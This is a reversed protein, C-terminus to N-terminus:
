AGPTMSAPNLITIWCPMSADEPRHGRRSSAVRYTGDVPYAAGSLSEVQFLSGPTLQEDTVLCLGAEGEVGVQMVLGDTQAGSLDHLTLAQPRFRGRPDLLLADIEAVIRSLDPQKSADDDHSM